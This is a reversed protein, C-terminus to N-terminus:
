FVDRIFSKVTGFVEFNIDPLVKFPPYEENESILWLEGDLLKIRKIFTNGDINVISIRDNVLNKVSSDIILKDGDQIGSKIMSNGSVKGFYLAKYNIGFIEKINTLEVLEEGVLPQKAAAGVSPIITLLEDRNMFDIRQLDVVRSGFMSLEITKMTYLSDNFATEFIKPNRHMCEDFVSEIKWSGSGYGLQEHLFLQKALIYLENNTYSKIKERFAERKMKNNNIM